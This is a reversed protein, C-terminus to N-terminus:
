WSDISKIIGLIESNVAAFQLRAEVLEHRRPTGSEADRGLGDADASHFALPPCAARAGAVDHEVELEDLVRWAGDFIQYQVFESVQDLCGVVCAELGDEGLM